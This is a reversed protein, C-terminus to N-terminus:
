IIKGDWVLHFLGGEKLLKVVATYEASTYGRRFLSWTLNNSLITIFTEKNHDSVKTALAVDKFISLVKGDLLLRRHNILEDISILLLDSNTQRNM